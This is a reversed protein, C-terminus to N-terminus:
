WTGCSSTSDNAIGGERARAEGGKRTERWCKRKKAVGEESLM